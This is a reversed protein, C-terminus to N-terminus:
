IATSKESQKWEPVFAKVDAGRLERRLRRLAQGEGKEVHEVRHRLVHHRRKVHDMQSEQDKAQRLVCPFESTSVKELQELGTSPQLPLFCIKPINLGRAPASLPNTSVPACLEM